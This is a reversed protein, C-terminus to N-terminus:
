YKQRSQKISRAYSEGLYHKKTKTVYYNESDIFFALKTGVKAM